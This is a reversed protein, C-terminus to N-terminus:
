ILSGVAAVTFSLVSMGLPYALYCGLVRLYVVARLAAPDPRPQTLTTSPAHDTSM